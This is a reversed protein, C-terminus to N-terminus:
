RAGGIKPCIVVPTGEDLYEEIREKPIGIIDDNKLVNVISHFNNEISKVDTLGGLGEEYPYKSVGIIVARSQKPDYPLIKKSMM